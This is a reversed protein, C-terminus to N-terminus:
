KMEEMINIARGEEISIMCDPLDNKFGLEMIIMHCAEVNPLKGETPVSISAHRITAFGGGDKLPHKEISYVVRFDQPVICSHEERDGVVAETGNKIDLLDDFSLVHKEAYERLKGLIEKESEGIVLVRM